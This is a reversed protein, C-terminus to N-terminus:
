KTTIKHFSNNIKGRHFNIKEELNGQIDSDLCCDALCMYYYLRALHWNMKIKVIRSNLGM